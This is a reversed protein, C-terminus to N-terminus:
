KHEYEDIYKKVESYIPQSFTQKVYLEVGSGVVKEWEKSSDATPSVVTLGKKKMAELGENEIKTIRPYFQEVIESTRKVIAPKYKDNIIKWAKDSIALLGYVPSIPMDLMYPTYDTVGVSNAAYPTLYTAEAMGSYIGSMLDTFALPIVKFGMRQWIQIAKQDTNDVALKIQRLDDPYLVKIKTFWKVWGTNTWGLPVFGNKQLEKNFTPQMKKFVYDFENDDKILMPVSLVFLQESISKMGQSSLAAAHLRGLKIKRIIDEEDGVTGGSYIRVTIEGNSIKTWEAAIEKITTEWLSGTPAVTGIKIEQAFIASAFVLILLLLFGKKM